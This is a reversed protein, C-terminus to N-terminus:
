TCIMSSKNAPFTADNGRCTHGEHMILCSEKTTHMGVTVLADVCIVLPTKAGLNSALKYPESGRVM